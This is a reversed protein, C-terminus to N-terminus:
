VNFMLKHLEVGFGIQKYIGRCFTLGTRGHTMSVTYVNFTTIGKTVTQEITSLEQNFSAKFTAQSGIGILLEM